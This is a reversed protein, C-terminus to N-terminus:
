ASAEEGLVALAAGLAGLFVRTGPGALLSKDECVLHDSQVIGDFADAVTVDLHAREAAIEQWYAAGAPVGALFIAKADFGLKGALYDRSVVLEDIVPLVFPELVPRPDILRENLVNEVLDAELGLGKQIKERIVNWGPVGRCTRWLVLDGAQYGAICLNEAGVFVALGSEQAALFRPQRLLSASLAAPKPQISVATPRRGEPLLRSLWLVQYEPLGAEMVFGDTKEMPKMIFRMGGNSLPVGPELPTKPAEPAPSPTAAPQPAANRRIVGLKGRAPAPATDKAHTGQAFDTQAADRTTQVLFQDPSTVAIAAHAAQFSAPLEWTCIRAASEWSDPLPDAPPPVFGLARLELQDKHVALRVAPCGRPDDAFLDLGVIDSTAHRGGKPASRAGGGITITKTRTLQIQM